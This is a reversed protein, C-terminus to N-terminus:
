TRQGDVQRARHRLHLVPRAVRDVVPAAPAQLPLPQAATSPPPEIHRPPRRRTVAGCVPALHDM